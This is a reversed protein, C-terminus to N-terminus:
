DDTPRLHVGIRSKGLFEGDDASPRLTCTMLARQIVESAAARTHAPELRRDLAGESSRAGLCAHGFTRASGASPRIHLGVDASAGLVAQAICISDVSSSM